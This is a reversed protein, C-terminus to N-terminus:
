EGALRNVIAAHEPFRVALEPRKALEFDSFDFGPAVTCGCLSFTKGLPEAAQWSGEPVVAQPREGAILDHGLLIKKYTGDRNIIHLALSDGDYHHWIEDSRIRHFASIAGAPLLFYIATSANRPAGHPLGKLVLPARFSERYFGGEPHPQMELLQVIHLIQDNM